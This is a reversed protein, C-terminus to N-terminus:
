LVKKRFHETARKTPLIDAFNLWKQLMNQKIPNAGLPLPGISYLKPSIAKQRCKATIGRFYGAFRSFDIWSNAVFLFLSSFLALFHAPL